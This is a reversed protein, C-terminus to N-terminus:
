WPQAELDARIASENVDFQPSDYIIWTQSLVRRTGVNPNPGFTIPSDTDMDDGLPGVSSAVKRVVDEHLDLTFAMTDAYPWRFSIVPCRDCLANSNDGYVPASNPTLRGYLLNPVIWSGLRTVGRLNALSDFLTSSRSDPAGLGWAVVKDGLARVAWKMTGFEDFYRFLFGRTRIFITDFRGVSMRLHDAEEWYLDIVEGHDRYTRCTAYRTAIEALVDSAQAAPIPTSGLGSNGVAAIARQHHTGCGLLSAATMAMVTGGSTRNRIL